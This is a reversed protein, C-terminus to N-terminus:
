PFPYDESWDGDDGEQKDVADCQRKVPCHKCIRMAQPGSKSIRGPPDSNYREVAEAALTEPELNPPVEVHLPNLVGKNEWLVLVTPSLDYTSYTTILSWLLFFDKKWYDNWQGGRFQLLWRDQLLFFDLPGTPTTITHRDGLLAPLANGRVLRWPHEEDSWLNRRVCGLLDADRTELRDRLIREAQKM